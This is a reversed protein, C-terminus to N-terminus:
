QFIADVSTVPKFRAPNAGLAIAEFHAQGCKIKASERDRLDGLDLGGKTEVVFYLKEGDSTSALIAWDPNYTGLPTSITFGRPLKAYLKIRDNAELDEAFGREVLSDYLVSEMVSKHVGSLMNKLYGTFEDAEFLEQVYYQSDGLQQYKIGDVLALQKRANIATAVREIFLQPNRKFDSLRESGVLIRHISRRTLQTRNQLDTLLDPLEIGSEDLAVLDAGQRQKSSKVGGQGIAIDAKQWRLRTPPIVLSNRLDAVCDSILKENDFEVRYTTKQKIRDWLEKFEPSYLVEKRSKIMRREDANKIDLRGALKKIVEIIQPLHEVFGLPVSVGGEKIADRLSDQVRGKADVYGESKFHEYLIKSRGAGLQVTHGDHTIAITAFEEPRIIGFRVGTDSEIEKQLNEAFEEYSENAIVTLTNYEFGRVREGQQNVCLRLGRGITQRRETESHMDRLTCIQFVNPNDWGERLASHSFIFKLPTEFSLLLEKDKMILNYADEAAERGGANRETTDVARKTRKDISFYGDHVQEVVGNLDAEDFLTQFEPHKALRRYEEEFIKAYVGKGLTGDADYIRYREVSDVFFLTLVKIGHPRLRQEKRLHEIITRRIMQRQLALPDVDGYSEGPSLFGEGGPVKLEVFPAAGRASIEGISCDTYVARGTIEPSRRTGTNGRKTRSTVLLVFDCQQHVRARWGIMYTESTQM